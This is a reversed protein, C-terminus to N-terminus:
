RPVSLGLMVHQHHFAAVALLALALMLWTSVKLAQLAHLARLRAPSM